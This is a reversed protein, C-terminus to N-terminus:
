KKKKRGNSKVIKFLKDDIKIGIPPYVGQIIEGIVRKPLHVGTQKAIEVSIRKALQYSPITIVGGKKKIMGKPLLVPHLHTKGSLDVIFLDRRTAGIREKPITIIKITEGM